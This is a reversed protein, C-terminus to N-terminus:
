LFLGLGIFLFLHLLAFLYLAHRIHKPMAKATGVGLWEQHSYISSPGGLSLSLANAAALMSLAQPEATSFRGALLIKAVARADGSPPFLAAVMWLFVAIRAPLYHLVFHLGLAASRFGDANKDGAPALPLSEIMLMAARSVCIGPLGFLLYWLSPALIKESFHVALIEIGARALGHEDLLMYHRWPTGELATRAQAINGAKLGRYIRWAADWAQRAPLLAALLMIEMFHLNGELLADGIWGLLLASAVVMCVLVVGRWQRQEISRHQRNLRREADRLFDAPMRTYRTIGLATYLSKPGGFILNLLLACLVLVARDM